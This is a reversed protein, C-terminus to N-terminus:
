WVHKKCQEETVISWKHRTFDSGTKTKKKFAYCNVLTGALINNEGVIEEAIEETLAYDDPNDPIPEDMRRQRILSCLGFRMFTAMDGQALKPFKRFGVWFSVISGPPQDDNDSELTKFEVAFFDEGDRTKDYKCRQVEVLFNGEEFYKGGETSKANQIGDFRGM